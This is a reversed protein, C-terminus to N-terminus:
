TEEDHHSTSLRQRLTTVCDREAPDDTEAEIMECAAIAVPADMAGPDELAARAYWLTDAGTM